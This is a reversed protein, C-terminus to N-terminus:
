TLCKIYSWVTGYMTLTKYKLTYFRGFNPLVYVISPDFWSSHSKSQAAMCLMSIPHLKPDQIKHLNYSYTISQAKRTFLLSCFCVINLACKGYWMKNLDFLHKSITAQRNINCVEYQSAASTIISENNSCHQLM